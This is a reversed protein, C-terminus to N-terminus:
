KINNYKNRRKRNLEEHEEETMNNYKERAKDRKRKLLFEEETMLDEYNKFIINKDENNIIRYEINKPIINFIKKNLEDLDSLNDFYIADVQIFNGQIIDNLLLMNYTLNSYITAMFIEYTCDDKIIYADENYNLKLFHKELIGWKMNKKTEEKKEKSRHYLEFVDDGTKSGYQKPLSFVFECVGLSNDEIYNKLNETIISKDTLFEGNYIYYNLNNKNYENSFEGDCPLFDFKLFYPYAGCIDIQFKGEKTNENKIIPKKIKDIGYKELELYMDNIYSLNLSAEKKIMTKITPKKSNNNDYKIYNNSVFLPQQTKNKLYIVDRNYTYKYTDKFRNSFLNNIINNDLLFPEKVDEFWEMSAYIEKKIPKNNFSKIKKTKEFDVAVIYFDNINKCRTIVTYLERAIIKSNKEIIYYLKNGDAVESGQFRTPCAVNKAQCYKLSKNKEARLQSFLPYNKLNKPQKSALYGKPVREVEDNTSLNFYIYIYEEIEKTHCIYANKNNFNIDEFNVSKFNNILYNYTYINDSDALEYYKKYVEATEENVPRKTEEINVYMVNNSNCLELFKNKIESEGEQSLLQKSDCTIIINVKGINLQVWELVKVSTQLIEDIVITNHEVEKFEDYFFGNKNNFLASCITKCEIEYRKAADIKLQNTSTTRLYNINNNKLFDDIISSKGAGAIGDIIKIINKNLFDDKKIGFIYDNM